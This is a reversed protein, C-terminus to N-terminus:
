KIGKKLKPEIVVIPLFLLPVCVFTNVLLVTDPDSWALGKSLLILPTLVVSLVMYVLGANKNAFDWNEQSEMSRKTRYGALANIKKPPFRNILAGIFFLGIPLLLDFDYVNMTKGENGDLYMTDFIPM